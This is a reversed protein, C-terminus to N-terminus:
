LPKLVILSRCIPCLSNADGHISMHSALCPICFAHSCAITTTNTAAVSELCIPCDPCDPCGSSFEMAKADSGGLTAGIITFGEERVAVEKTMLISDHCRAFFDTSSNIYEKNMQVRGSDLEVLRSLLGIGVSTNVRDLESLSSCSLGEATLVLDDSSLTGLSVSILPPPTANILVKFEVAAHDQLHKSREDANYTMTCSGEYHHMISTKNSNMLFGIIELERLLKQVKLQFATLAAPTPQLLANQNVNPTIVIDLNSGQLPVKAFFRRLFGGVVAWKLGHRTSLLDLVRIFQLRTSAEAENTNM